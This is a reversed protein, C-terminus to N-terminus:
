RSGLHSDVIRKNYLNALDALRLVEALDARLKVLGRRTASSGRPGVRFDGEVQHSFLPALAETLRRWPRASASSARCWSPEGRDTHRFYERM